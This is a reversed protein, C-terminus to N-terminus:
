NEGMPRVSVKPRESHLRTLVPTINQQFEYSPGGNEKLCFTLQYWLPQCGRVLLYVAASVETSGGKAVPIDAGTRQLDERLLVKRLHLRATQWAQLSTGAQERYNSAFNRLRLKMSPSMGEAPEEIALYQRLHDSPEEAPEPRERSWAVMGAVVGEAPVFGLNEVTLSISIQGYRDLHETTNGQISPANVGIQPDRLGLVPQNRRGLIVDAALYDPLERNSDHFRVWWSPRKAQVYLPVLAPSRAVAVFLLQGTMRGDDFNDLSIRPLPSLYPSLDTLIDSTWRVLDTSGSPPTIPVLPRKGTAPDRQDAPGVCLVGGDGNAFAAVYERITDRFEKKDQSLKGSKFDLNSAESDVAILQDLEEQTPSGGQLLTELLGRVLQEDRRNTM